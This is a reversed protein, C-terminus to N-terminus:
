LEEAKTLAAEVDIELEVKNGILLAGSELNDNYAIGFDTRDISGSAQFGIKTNGWPDKIPGNVTTTLLVEKSIGRITLNGALFTKGEVEKFGTSKFTIKPHVPEDFFDENLLHTDRKKNATDISIVDIDAEISKLTNDDNLIITGTYKKFSGKVKSIVMHKISFGLYAHSTDVEYVHDAQLATSFLAFSLSTTLLLKKIM